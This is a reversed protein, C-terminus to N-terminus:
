TGDEARGSGVLAAPYSLRLSSRGLQEEVIAEFKWSDRDVIASVLEKATAYAEQADQARVVFAGQVFVAYVKQKRSM